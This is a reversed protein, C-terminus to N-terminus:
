RGNNGRRKLEAFEGLRKNIEPALIYGAERKDLYAKGELLLRIEINDIHQQLARIEDGINMFDSQNGMVFEHVVRATMNAGIMAKETAIAARMRGLQQGVDIGKLASEVMETSTKKVEPIKDEIGLAYGDGYDGGLKRTKKSPSSSEQTKRAREIATRVVLAASDGIIKIKGMIGKSLGTGFEGGAVEAKKEMDYSDAVKGPESCAENAATNIDDKKSDIGEELGICADIGLKELQKIIEERRVGEADQLATLLAIAKTQVEPTKSALSEILVDSVGTGINNLAEAIEPTAIGMALMWEEKSRNVMELASDVMEQTVSPTGEEVAKKLNEYHSQMNEVQNELTAKTGTEATIFSNTINQMALEMSAADESLIAASLGENNKITSVYGVYTAENDEVAKQMKKYSEKAENNGLIEKLHTRRYEEALEENGSKLLKEYELATEKTENCKKEAEDRKKLSDQYADLAEDRKQIAETYAQENAALIAEAKKKELVKDISAELDGNSKIVDRIQEKEIGLATSLKNIIFDAREEYGEKIKGNADVLGVLEDKLEEYYGYETEVNGMAEKRAKDMETYSEHLEKAHEVARKQEENLGYQEEIEKQLTNVHVVMGATLGAVGAALLVIPNAAMVANWAAHAATTLTVKGTLVGVAMQKLTLGGTSAVLQLANAEEMATLTAAVAAMKKMGESITNVIAYGKFAIYGTVAISALNDLNVGTEKAKEALIELKKETTGSIASIKSMGDEFKSGSVIVAAGVDILNKTTEAVSKKTAKLGEEALKGLKELEKEIRSSDLEMKIVM